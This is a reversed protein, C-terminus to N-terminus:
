LIPKTKTVQSQYSTFLSTRSVIDFITYNAFELFPDQDVNIRQISEIIDHVAEHFQPTVPVEPHLAHCFDMRQMALLMCQLQSNM